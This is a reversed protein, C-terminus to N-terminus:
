SLEQENDIYKKLKEITDQLEEHFPALSLAKKFQYMAMRYDKLAMYARGANIYPYERNHYHPANKAMEFWKLSEEINGDRLLYSGLDNYPPGYEPDVKIARLCYEKAKEFKGDLSYSWAILNLVEATTKFQAAREFAEIAKSINKNLINQHGVQLFHEYKKERQGDLSDIKGAITLASNNLVNEELQFRAPINNELDEPSMTTLNIRPYQIQQDSTKLVFQHFKFANDYIINTFQLAKHLLIKENFNIELLLNFLNILRKSDERAKVFNECLSLDNLNRGAFSSSLIQQELFEHADYLFLLMVKKIEKSNRAFHNSSLALLLRDLYNAATALESKLITRLSGKM